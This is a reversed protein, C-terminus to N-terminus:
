KTTFEFTALIQQITILYDYDKQVAYYKILNFKNWSLGQLNDIRIEHSYYDGYDRYTERAARGAFAISSIRRGSPSNNFGENDIIGPNNAPAPSIWLSIDDSSKNRPHLTIVPFLSIREDEISSLTWDPPYALEFSYKVDSYVRWGVNAKTPSTASISPLVSASGEDRTHLLALASLFRFLPLSKPTTLLIVGLM